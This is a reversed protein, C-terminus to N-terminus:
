IMAFGSMTGDDFSVRIPMDQGFDVILTGSPAIRPIMQSYTTPYGSKCVGNCSPVETVYEM